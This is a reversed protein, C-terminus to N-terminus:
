RQFVHSLSGSGSDLTWGAGFAFIVVLFLAGSFQRGKSGPNKKRRAANVIFFMLVLAFLSIGIIREGMSMDALIDQLWILLARLEIAITDWIAQYPGSSSAIVGM